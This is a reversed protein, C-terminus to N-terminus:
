GGTRRAYLAVAEARNNVGLKRFISRMHTKVTNESLYLREAIERNRRGDALAVLVDQERMTLRGQPGTVVEAVRIAPEDGGRLLEELSTAMEERSVTMPLVCANLREALVRADIQYSQVPLLVAARCHGPLEAIVRYLREGDDDPAAVVLRARATTVADLLGLDDEVEAAVQLRAVPLLERIGARILASGSFIVTPEVPKPVDHRPGPLLGTAGDTRAPGKM